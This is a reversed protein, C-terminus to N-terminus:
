GMRFNLHEEVLQRTSYRDRGTSRNTSLTYLSDLSLSSRTSSGTVKRIHWGRQRSRSSRESQQRLLPHQMDQPVNHDLEVNDKGLHMILVDNTLTAESDNQHSTLSSSPISSTPSSVEGEELERLPVDALSFFSCPRSTIRGTRKNVINAFMAAPLARCAGLGSRSITQARCQSINDKLATTSNPNRDKDQRNVIHRFQSSYSEGTKSRM